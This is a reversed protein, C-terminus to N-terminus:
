EGVVLVVLGIVINGLGYGVLIKRLHPPGDGHRGRRRDLARRAEVVRGSGVLLTLGFVVLVAAAIRTSLM